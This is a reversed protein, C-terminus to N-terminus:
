SYHYTPKFNKWTLLYIKAISLSRFTLIAFMDLYFVCSLREDGEEKPRSVTLPCM